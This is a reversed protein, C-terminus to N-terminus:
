GGCEGASSTDRALTSVSPHKGPLALVRTSPLPWPQRDCYLLVGGAAGHCTARHASKPMQLRVDGSQQMLQIGGRRGHVTGGFRTVPNLRCGGEGAGDVDMLCSAPRRLRPMAVAGWLRRM